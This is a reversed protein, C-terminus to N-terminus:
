ATVVVHATKNSVPLHILYITLMCTVTCAYQNRKNIIKFPGILDVAIFETPMKPIELHFQVYNPAQLNM